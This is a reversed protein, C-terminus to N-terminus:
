PENKIGDEVINLEEVIEDVDREIHETQKEIKLSLEEIKAIIEDTRRGSLKATYGLVPLAVGQFFVAVIYQMWGVLNTPQNWFLPILVLIAIIWFMTMTALSDALVQALRDMLANFNYSITKM